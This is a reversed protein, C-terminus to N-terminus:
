INNLGKIEDETLFSYFEIIIHNKVIYQALYDYDQRVTRESGELERIKESANRIYDLHIIIQKAANQYHLIDSEAIRQFQNLYCEYDSTMFEVPNSSNLWKMCTFVFESILQKYRKNKLLTSGQPIVDTLSNNAVKAANRLGTLVHDDQKKIGEYLNMVPKRVTNLRELLVPKLEDKDLVSSYTMAHSFEVTFDKIDLVSFKAKAANKAQLMVLDQGDDEEKHPIISKFFNFINM